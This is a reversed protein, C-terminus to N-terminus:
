QKQFKKQVTKGSTKCLLLYYGTQLESLDLEKEQGNLVGVRCLRGQLDRIEYSAVGDIDFDLHLRDEVPNPYIGNKRQIEMLSAAQDQLSYSSLFNWIEVSADIDQNTVLGGLPISSGPWTHGGGIVRYLEVRVEGNGNRYRVREVKSLDTLVVDPLMTTEPSATCQNVEAWKTIVDEVSRFNQLSNGGYPVTADNIGHIHMVPVQRTPNCVAYHLSVMSGAVSAIAAFRQSFFCALDHSMFSGNSMGTSYIRTTDIAYSAILEDALKNVFLYDRNEPNYATFNDWGTGNGIDLGDPHVILFNATDAIKRFDGYNEQELANSTYGHFNFLLPVKSTGDYSGPIYLRYSRSVGDVDMNQVLTQQGYFVGPLSILCVLSNLIRKRMGKKKRKIEEM